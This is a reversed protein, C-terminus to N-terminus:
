ILLFDIANNLNYKFQMYIFQKLAFAIKVVFHFVFLTQKLKLSLNVAYM